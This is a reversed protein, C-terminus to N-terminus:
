NQILFNIENPIMKYSKVEFPKRVLKPILYGLNDTKSVTYDCEIQFSNEDIKNFNSLGVIYTVQIKKELINLTIGKPLNTIKYPINLTGETFKEIKGSITIEKTEFKLNKIGPPIQIAIKRTFDAKVDELVIPVLAINKIESIYNEPGSVLISDPKLSIEESLDYGIHYKIKINAKVALKKTVLSGVDLFLTDKIIEQLRVGSPLQKKIRQKQSKVLVYYKTGKKKILTNAKIKIEKTNFRTKLIKFGNSNVVVELANTRASLLLKNQSIESYSIPFSITTTYEKSLTILLWIIVAALVFSLFTKPIKKKPKL